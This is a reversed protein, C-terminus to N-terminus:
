RSWKGGLAETFLGHLFGLGFAAYANDAMFPSALLDDTGSGDEGPRCWQVVVRDNQCIAVVIHDEHDGRISARMGQIGVTAGQHVPM